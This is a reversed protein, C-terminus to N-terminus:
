KFFFFGSCLAPKQCWASDFHRPSLLPLIQVTAVNLLTSDKYLLALWNAADRIDTIQVPLHLRLPSTTGALQSPM